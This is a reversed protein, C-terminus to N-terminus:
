AFILPLKRWLRFHGEDNYYIATAGIVDGSKWDPGFHWACAGLLFAKAKQLYRDEGTVLWCLTAAEAVGTIIGCQDQVARWKDAKDSDPKSPSPDGYTIPETPLPLALYKAYL